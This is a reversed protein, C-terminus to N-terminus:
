HSFGTKSTESRTQCFGALMAASTIAVNSIESQSVLPIISDLSPFVLTSILMCLPTASRCM